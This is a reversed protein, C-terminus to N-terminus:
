VALKRFYEGSIDRVDSLDSAEKVLAELHGRLVQAAEKNDCVAHDKSLMGEIETLHKDIKADDVFNLGRFEAIHALLTKVSAESAVRKSKIKSIVTTCHEVVKTRLESVVDEVFVNIKDMHSALQQKYIADYKEAEEAKAVGAANARDIEKHIDVAAFETPMAIEYSIIHFYFKEKVSEKTPYLLDVAAVDVLTANDRYFALAEAKYEDYKEIFEDVLHYFETQFEELKAYVSLFSKKTVFHSQPATPLKHSSAYLYNRAKGQHSKFKNFVEPKILMKKGLRIVEPLKGAIKIDSETLSYSMGWMGTNLCILKGDQFIKDYYKQLSATTAERKEHNIQTM